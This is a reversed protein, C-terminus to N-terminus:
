ASDRRIRSRTARSACEPGNPSNPRPTSLARRGRRRRRHRGSHGSRVRPCGSRGRSRGQQDSTPMRRRAGSRGRQRLRFGIDSQLSAGRRDDDNGAMDRAARDAIAGRHERQLREAMGTQATGVTIRGQCGPWPRAVRITGRDPVTRRGSSPGPARATAPRPRRRAKRSDRRHRRLGGGDGRQDLGDPRLVRLRDIDAIRHHAIGAPEVHRRRRGLWGRGASASRRYRSAWGSRAPISSRRRWARRCRARHHRRREVGPRRGHQDGRRRRHHGAAGAIQQQRRGFRQQGLMADDLPRRVAEAVQGGGDEQRPQEGALRDGLRQLRRGGRHELDQRARGLAAAVFQLEFGVGCLRDCGIAITCSRWRM